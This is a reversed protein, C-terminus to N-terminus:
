SSLLFQFSFLIDVRSSCLLCCLCFFFQIEAAAFTESYNWLSSWLFTIPSFPFSFLLMSGAGFRIFIIASSFIWCCRFLKSYTYIILVPSFSCLSKLFFFLFSLDNLHVYIFVYIMTFSMNLQKRSQKPNNKIATFKTKTHRM